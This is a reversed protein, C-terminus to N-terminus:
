VGTQLLAGKFLVPGTPKGGPAGGRPELTIALTPVERMQGEQAVLRAVPGGGMVGLSKPAGGPPLAWLELSRDPGEQYGGVRKLTLTNRTPDFTVLVTPANKDDSLVAVYQIAPRAELQSVLQTNQQALQQGQRSAQALQADRQQVQRTLNVSVVAVAIAVCGGALAAGRWWGLHRRLRDLMPSDGAPVSASPSTALLNEIRKWVNASPVSQPQLETLSAFREQWAVGAARIIPSRRALTEFRRRAGGRLTGLAYAAALRDLLEPHRHLDM